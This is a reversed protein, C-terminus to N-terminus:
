PMPACHVPFVWIATSASYGMVLHSMVSLMLSQREDYRDKAPAATSRRLRHRVSLVAAIRQRRNGVAHDPEIGTGARNRGAAIGARSPRNRRARRARPRHYPFRGAAPRRIVLHARFSCAPPARAGVTVPLVVLRQRFRVRQFFGFRLRGLAFALDFDRQRAVAVHIPHHDNRSCAHRRSTSIALRICFSTLPLIQPQDHCCRRGSRPCHRRRNGGARDHRRQQRDLGRAAAKDIEGSLDRFKDVLGSRDLAMTVSKM